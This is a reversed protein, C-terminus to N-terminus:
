SPADEAKELERLRDRLGAAEEFREARVAADLERKLAEIREKVFRRRGIRERAKAPAAGVHVNSGHVKLLLRNMEEEFVTYDHACGLRGKKQFEPLTMDCEPCPPAFIEGAPPVPPIATQIADLVQGLLKGVEAPAVGPPAAGYPEVVFGKASACAACLRLKEMKGGVISTLHVVAESEGCGECNM